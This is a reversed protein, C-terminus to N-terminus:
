PPNRSREERKLEKAEGRADKMELYKDLRDEYLKDSSPIGFKLYQGTLKLGNPTKPKPELVHSTPLVDSSKQPRKQPVPNKSPRPPSPRLSRRPPISSARAEPTLTYKRTSGIQNDIVSFFHPNITASRSNEAQNETESGSSSEEDLEIESKVETETGDDKKAVTVINENDEAKAENDSTVDLLLDYEEERPENTFGVVKTEDFVVNRARKLKTTKINQLLFAASDNDYGLFVQKRTKPDFKSKERKPNKVFALCCFVKM